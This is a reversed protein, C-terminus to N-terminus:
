FPIKSHISYYINEVKERNRTHKLNTVAIGTSDIIPNMKERIQKYITDNTRDEISASLLLNLLVRNNYPITIDFSYRHEGTIVLGNWSPVRFEWFFQDQWEVPNTPHLEFFQKLYKEFVCDTKAVLKRNHFFFKYM